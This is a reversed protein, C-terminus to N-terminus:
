REAEVPLRPTPDPAALVVATAALGIVAVTVMMEVFTFGARRAHDARGTASTPTM